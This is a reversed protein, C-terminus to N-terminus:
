VCESMHETMCGYSCACIWVYGDICAQLRAPFPRLVLAGKDRAASPRLLMFCRQVCIYVYRYVNVRINMCGSCWLVKTEPPPPGSCWSAGKCVYICYRYVNVRINMCGSCWFVNTEPPLPRSCWSAGKYVYICMDICM